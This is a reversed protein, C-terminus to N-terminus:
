TANLIEQRRKEINRMLEDHVGQNYALAMLAHITEAHDPSKNLSSISVIEAFMEKPYDIM